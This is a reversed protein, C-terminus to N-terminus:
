KKKLNVGSKAARAAARAERENRQEKERSAKEAALEALGHRRSSKKAQGGHPPSDDPSPERVLPRQVGRYTRPPEKLTSIDIRMGRSRRKRRCHILHSFRPFSATGTLLRCFFSFFAFCASLAYRADRDRQVEMKDIDEEQIEDVLPGYYYATDPDRVINHPISVLFQQRIDPDLSLTDNVIGSGYSYYARIHMQVQERIAHPIATRVTWLL